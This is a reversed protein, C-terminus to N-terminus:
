RLILVPLESVRLLTTTTSGVILQRIRSHGYAGMVLLAAGQSKLLAPLVEEPEGPVLATAADFGAAALSQRAEDLQRRALVTEAGAMALLVPLGALLPSGAVMAVTKRATTSGDFAIVFRQPALFQAGTAILVPRKVSRIVREVHHDLHLRAGGAARHHEGLVFLRADSEMELVTDVLEGHRLRGDVCNLDAAAARERAAILLRRGAEQALKGRQADIESLEHLLADQAGLGIAGSYDSIAAREPHRELVHLFELPVDLRQASWVAWDIVAATNSQGDICAYVKNM